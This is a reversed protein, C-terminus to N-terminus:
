SRVMRAHVIFRKPASGIFYFPYCTVLTVSPITSADLVRTQDPGVIESSHVRYRYSRQQTTVFIDDCRRINHLARFFTDRHAALGVNGPDGPLATGPIHGVGKALTQTGDGELVMASIGIRAIDIRGV